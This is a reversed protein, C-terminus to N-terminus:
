LRSSPILVIHTKNIIKTFKSPYIQQFILRLDKFFESVKLVEHLSEKILFNNRNLSIPPSYSFSLGKKVFIPM